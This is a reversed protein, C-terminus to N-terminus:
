SGEGQSPRGKADEEARGAKAMEALLDSIKSRVGPDTIGFYSALLKKTEFAPLPLDESNGEFGEFFWGIPVHLAVSLDHLKSASIRNDGSEYKQIQQYKLGIAASAATQTMKLEKRRKRIRRGVDVDVPHRESSCDKKETM